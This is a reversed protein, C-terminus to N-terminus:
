KHLNYTFYNNYYYGQYMYMRQCKVSYQSCKDYFEDRLKENKFYIEIFPGQNIRYKLDSRLTNFPVEQKDFKYPNVQVVYFENKPKDFLMRRFRLPEYLFYQNEISKYKADKRLQIGRDLTPSDFIVISFQKFADTNVGPVAYISTYNTGYLYAILDDKLKPYKNLFDENYYPNSFIDTYAVKDSKDLNLTKFIEKTIVRTDYTGAIRYFDIANILCQGMLVFLVLYILKKNFDSLKFRDFIYYILYGIGVSMIPILPLLYRLFILVSISLLIMFVIPFSLFALKFTKSMRDDKLFCLLGVAGIISIVGGIANPFSHFIHFLIPNKSDFAWHGMSFAHDFEMNFDYYFDWFNIFIYPNTIYFALIVATLFLIFDFFLDRRNKQTYFLVSLPTVAVLLGNYKASTALGVLLGLIILNKRSYKEKDRIFYISFFIVSMCIATLPIDVAMHHSLSMWIGSTALILGAFFSPLIKKNTLLYTTLFTFCVGIVAFINNVILGPLMYSINGKPIYNLSFYRVFEDFNSVYQLKKLYLYFVTYAIADIDSVLAPKKFFDPSGNHYFMNLTKHICFDRFYYESGGHLGLVLVIVSLIVLCFIVKKDM